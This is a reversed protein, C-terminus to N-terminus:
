NLCCKKFKKGSGCPCPDNRGVKPESHVQTVSVQAGPFMSELINSNYLPKPTSRKDRLGLEIEVDEIDGAIGIDVYGQTFANRIVDISDCANLDILMSIALGTLDPISPKEIFKTLISVCEDRYSENSKVLNGLGEIAYSRSYHFKTEDNIFDRLVTIASHGILCFIKLFERGFLLDYEYNEILKLLQPIVNACGLQALAYWSHVAACFGSDDDTDASDLLDASTAMQMLESINDATIGLTSYDIPDNSEPYNLSFLKKVPESYKM